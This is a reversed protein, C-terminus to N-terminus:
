LKSVPRSRLWRLIAWAALGLLIFPGTFIAMRFVMGLWGALLSISIIWLRELLSSPQWAHPPFFPLAEVKSQLHVTFYVYPAPDGVQQYIVRSGPQEHLPTGLELVAWHFAEASGAPVALVVLTHQCGEQQWSDSEVLSGGAQHALSTARHSADDVNAVELDLYTEYLRTYSSPPVPTDRPYAAIQRPAALSSCASLTSTLLFFMVIYIIPRATSM